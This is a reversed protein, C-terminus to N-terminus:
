DIAFLPQDYEVPQGHEVLIATIAGARPAVIENFTKMAEVLLVKDGADVRAGIAVFPADNPSPRLYATGVMPSKVVGALPTSKAPSLIAPAAAASAAAVMSAASISAAENSAAVVASRQRAVRITLDDRSVEIESLDLRKAMEALAEIFDIQAEVKAPSTSSRPVTPEM